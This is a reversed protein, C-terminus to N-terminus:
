KVYSIRCISIKELSAIFGPKFSVYCTTLSSVIQEFVEVSNSIQTGSYTRVTFPVPSLWWIASFNNNRSYVFPLPILIETCATKKVPKQLGECM